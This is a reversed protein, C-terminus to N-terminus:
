SIKETNQSMILAWISAYIAVDGLWSLLKELVHM